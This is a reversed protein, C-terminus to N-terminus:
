RGDEDGLVWLLLKVKARLEILEISQDRYVDLHKKISERLNQNELELRKM